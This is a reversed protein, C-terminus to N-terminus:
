IRPRVVTKPYRRRLIQQFDAVSQGERLTSEAEDHFAVDDAPNTVLVFRSRLTDLQPGELGPLFHVPSSLYLQDTFEGEYFRDVNYTGSMCIAAGFVHPYRCM